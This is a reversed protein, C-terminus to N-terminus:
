DYPQLGRTELRFYGNDVLHTIKREDIELMEAVDRVGLRGGEYDRLLTRVRIYLKQEDDL